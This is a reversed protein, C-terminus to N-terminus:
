FIYTISRFRSCCVCFTYLGTLRSVPQRRIEETEFTKACHFGTEISRYRFTFPTLTFSEGWFGLHTFKVCSNQAHM